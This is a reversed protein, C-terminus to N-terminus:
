KHRQDSFFKARAIPSFILVCLMALCALLFVFPMLLMALAAMLISEERPDPLMVLGGIAALLLLGLGILWEM